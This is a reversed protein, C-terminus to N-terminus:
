AEQRVLRQHNAKLAHEMCQSASEVLCELAYGFGTRTRLGKPVGVVGIVLNSANKRECPLRFNAKFPKLAADTTTERAPRKEQFIGAKFIKTLKGFKLEQYTRELRLIGIMQPQESFRAMVIM